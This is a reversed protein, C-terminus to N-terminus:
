YLSPEGEPRTKFRRHVWYYQDPTERVRAEIFDNMRQTAAADDDHGPFDTWMPWYRAVYGAGSPDFTTVLAIVNASALRALKPVVTVTATPVGFFGAFVADSVGLDMDPLVFYPLGRKMARLVPRIGDSRTVLVPANFRARGARLQADLVPDSQEAYMSVGAHRRSYDVGGADLGVFHPVVILLPKGTVDPMAAELHELGEARILRALRQPSAFWLLGRDLFARAWAQFHARELRRREDSPRDPFCLELNRRVVHRRGAVIVHLLSGVANGIRRQLAYPLMAQLRLLLILLRSM